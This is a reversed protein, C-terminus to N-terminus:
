IGVESLSRGFECSYAYQSLIGPLGENAEYATAVVVDAAYGAHYVVEAQVISGQDSMDVLNGIMVKGRGDGERTWVNLGM